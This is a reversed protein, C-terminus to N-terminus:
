TFDKLVKYVLELSPRVSEITYYGRRKLASSGLQLIDEDIKRKKALEYLVSITYNNEETNYPFVFNSIDQAKKKAYVSAIKRIVEM